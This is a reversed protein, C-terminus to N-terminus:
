EAVAPHRERQESITMPNPTQPLDRGPLRSSPDTIESFQVDANVYDSEGQGLITPSHTWPPTTKEPLPTSPEGHESPRRARPHLPPKEQGQPYYNVRGGDISVERPHQQDNLQFIEMALTEIAGSPRRTAPVPPPQNTPFSRKKVPISPPQDLSERPEPIKTLNGNTSPLSVSGKQNDDIDEYEPVAPNENSMHHDSEANSPM